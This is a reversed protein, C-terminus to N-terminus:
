KKLTAGPSAYAAKVAGEPAVDPDVVVKVGPLAAANQVQSSSNHAFMSWIASLIPGGAGLIWEIVSVVISPDLGRSVLWAALPGGAGFLLRVLSMIQASNMPTTGKLPVPQPLILQPKSVSSQGVLKMEQAPSALVALGADAAAALREISQSKTDINKLLTAIHLGHAIVNQLNGLPLNIKNANSGFLTKTTLTILEAWPLGEEQPQEQERAVVPPAPFPSPAAPNVFEWNVKGKGDIGLAKAALPTLDIGASNTKRGRRDTGTEAQPRDGNTWYPDATDQGASNKGGNWPGVDMVQAEITKGNAPNIVRVTPRAGEFKFPLSVGFSANPDIYAGYASKKRSETSSWVTATIDTQLGSSPVFVPAPNALLAAWTYPGIIGDVLALGHAAQFDRVAGDTEEGFSGDVTVGLLGQAEKVAAGRSGLELRPRVVSVEGTPAQLSVKWPEVSDALAPDSKVSVHFHKDHPNAGNYPRWAWDQIDPNSIRKNSIIYKVRHDRSVRIQEAIETAVVGHGPDNTIDLAHVVGNADAEHDSTPNQAHHQQSAIWGDSSKDRGPALADIQSRLEELSKAIRAM